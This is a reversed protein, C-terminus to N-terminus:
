QTCTTSDLGLMMRPVTRAAKYQKCLPILTEFPVLLLQSATLPQTFLDWWLDM